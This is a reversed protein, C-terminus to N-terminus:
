ELRSRYLDLPIRGHLLGGVTEAKSVPSDVVSVPPVLGGNDM